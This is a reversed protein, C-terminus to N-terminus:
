QEDEGQNRYNCFLLKAQRKAREEDRLSLNFFEAAQEETYNGLLLEARCIYRLGLSSSIVDMDSAALASQALSYALSANRRFMEQLGGVTTIGFWALQPIYNDPSVSQIEAGCVDAIKRLLERMPDNHDVYEQLSVMNIAVDDARNEQIRKRIDATYNKMGDRVRMFEEDAIELLGAIRSFAREYERPLGFENKYGIDHEIAAWTHQLITRIQIEFKKGCIHEPQGCGEPFYCIYHLSLYGFSNAKILARKDSSNKWDVTFTKEVLKGFKDVDDNFFCIVRAGLIDTLNDLEKYWDGNRVLKEALSDEKKVRHEISFVEIGSTEAIEQLKEGVVKELELFNERQRRYEEIILRDKLNM